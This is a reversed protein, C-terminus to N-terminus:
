VVSKRDGLESSIRDNTWSELEFLADLDAPAAVRDLLGAVPYRSPVLRPAAKWRLLAEPPTLEM